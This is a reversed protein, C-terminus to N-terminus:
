WFYGPKVQTQHQQPDYQLLYECSIANSNRLQEVEAERIETDTSLVLVQHRAQPFYKEVLNNRHSSDLRGLPTYIAM